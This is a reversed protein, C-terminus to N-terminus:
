IVSMLLSAFLKFPFSDASSNLTVVLWNVLLTFLDAGDALEAVNEQDEHEFACLRFLVPFTKLHFLLM